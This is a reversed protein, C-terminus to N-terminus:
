LLTEQTSAYNDCICYYLFVYDYVKLYTNQPDSDHVWSGDLYDLHPKFYFSYLLHTNRENNRVSGGLKENNSKLRGLMGEGLLAEIDSGKTWRTREVTSRGKGKEEM